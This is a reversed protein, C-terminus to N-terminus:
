GFNFSRSRLRSLRWQRHEDEADETYKDDDYKDKDLIYDFIGDINKPVSNSQFITAYTFNGAFFIVIAVLSILIKKM